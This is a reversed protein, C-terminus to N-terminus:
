KYAHLEADPTDTILEQKSVNTLQRIFTKM